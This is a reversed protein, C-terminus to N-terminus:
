AQEAESEGWEHVRGGAPELPGRYPALDARATSISEVTGPDGLDSGRVPRSRAALTDILADLSQDAPVDSLTELCALPLLVPWGPGAEYEPRLIADPFSGHAEILSTITEPDLWTMRAPWALVADTEGVRDLSAEIGRRLLDAAGASGAGTWAPDALNAETGVLASAVLGLPDPGVVVVPIAGGSWAAEAIRRVAPLGDADALASGAQVTLIVAAVTM